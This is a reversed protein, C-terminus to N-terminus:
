TSVGNKNRRLLVNHGNGDAHEGGIGVDSDSGLRTHVDDRRRQAGDDNESKHLKSARLYGGIAVVVSVLAIFEFTWVDHLTGNSYEICYKSQTECTLAFTLIYGIGSAIGNQLIINAFAGEKEYSFYDAFTSRLTGEFTARGTGHLAYVGLLSWWGYHAADPKFVFPLIVGGFCIAGLILIIGNNNGSSSSGSSAGIKGFLLSMVAAVVSVTSTLIGVYKSDPDDLAVPLVQGNVYSNLFASTFGFVANLGIMYKM